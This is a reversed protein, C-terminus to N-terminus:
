VHSDVLNLYAGGEERRGGRAPAPHGTNSHFKQKRTYARTLTEIWTHPRVTLKVWSDGGAGDWGCVYAWCCGNERVKALMKRMCTDICDSTKAVVINSGRTCIEGVKTTKSSRGLLAIQNPKFPHTPHRNITTSTSMCLRILGHVGGGGYM